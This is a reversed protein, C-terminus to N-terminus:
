AAPPKGRPHHPLIEIAVREGNVSLADAGASGNCAGNSVILDAVSRGILEHRTCGFISATEDDVDLVVGDQHLLIGLPETGDTNVPSLTLPDSASPDLM